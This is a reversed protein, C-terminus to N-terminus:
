RDSLESIAAKLSDRVSLGKSPTSRRSVEAGPASSTVSGSARKAKLVKEQQAKADAAIKAQRAAEAQTQQDQMIQMRIEPHAYVAADYAADLDVRGNKLPIAAQGTNPDPTLLHGMMVRVQDFYPKDSAWQELMEHTKAQQQEAFSQALGNFTQGVQNQFGNLREELKNIYSQVAPPIDGEPQAQGNQQAATQNQQMQQQQLQLLQNADIGYAAFLRRPDYRYSQILAPFAQDPDKALADFWAFLQAVAQGPTKQFQKITNAYPAIAQDIESYQSKLHEVGREVDKERKVIAAKVKEPINAWEAKADKSWAAPAAQAEAKAKPAAAVAKDADEGEGESSAVEETTEGEALEEQEEEVERDSTDERRADEFSRKLSERVSVPGKDRTLSRDETGTDLNRDDETQSRDANTSTSVNLDM